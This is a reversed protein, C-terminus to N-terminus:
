GFTWSAPDEIAERKSLANLGKVCRIIYWVAVVPILLFGILVFTLILTIVGFLLGMWWTRIQFRYHTQL